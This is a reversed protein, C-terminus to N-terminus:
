DNNLQGPCKLATKNPLLPFPLLVPCNAERIAQGNAVSNPQMMYFVCLVQHERGELNIQIM